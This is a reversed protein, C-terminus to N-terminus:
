QVKVRFFAPSQAPLPLLVNNTDIPWVVGSAPAWNPPSLSPTTEVTYSRPGPSAAYNTAAQIEVPVSSANTSSATISLGGAAQSGAEVYTGAHVAMVSGALASALRTIANSHKRLESCNGNM